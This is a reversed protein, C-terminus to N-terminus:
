RLRASSISEARATGLRSKWTITITFNIPNAAPDVYAVKISESSLKFDNFPNSDTLAVINIATNAPLKTTIDDFPLTFLYEMTSQLKFMAINTENSTERLLGSAYLSSYVGLFGVILLTVAVLVEVFTFGSGRRTRYAKM